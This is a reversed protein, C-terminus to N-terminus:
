NFKNQKVIRDVLRKVRQSGSNQLIYILNEFNRNNREEIINLKSEVIDKLSDLEEYVGENKEKEL